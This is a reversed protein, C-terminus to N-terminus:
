DIKRRKIFLSVRAGNLTHGRGTACTFGGTARTVEGRERNSQMGGYFLYVALLSFPLPPSKKRWISGLQGRSYKLSTPGATYLHASSYKYNSFISKGFVCNLSIRISYEVKRTSSTYGTLYFQM